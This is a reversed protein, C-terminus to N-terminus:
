RHSRKSPELFRIALTEDTVGERERETDEEKEKEQCKKEETERASCFVKETKKSSRPEYSSVPGGFVVLLGSVKVRCLPPSCNKSLSLTNRISPVAINKRPGPTPLTLADLLDGCLLGTTSHSLATVNSPLVCM